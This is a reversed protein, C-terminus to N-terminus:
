ERECEINNYEYMQEEERLVDLELAFCKMRQLARCVNRDCIETALKTIYFLGVEVEQKETQGVAFMMAILKKMEIQKRIDYEQEKIKRAYEGIVFIGNKDRMGWDGKKIDVYESGGSRICAYGFV